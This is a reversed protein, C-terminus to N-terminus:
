YFKGAHFVPEELSIGESVLIVIRPNHEVLRKHGSVDVVLSDDGMFHSFIADETAKLYNTVDTKKMDGNKLLLMERTMYYIYTCLYLDYPPVHNGNVLDQEELCEVIYEKFIRGEASLYKSKTRPNIPYMNNVSCIRRPIKKVKKRKDSRARAARKKEEDGRRSFYPELSITYDFTM